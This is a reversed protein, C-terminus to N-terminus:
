KKNTTRHEPIQRPNNRRSEQDQAQVCHIGKKRLAKNGDVHINVFPKNRFLINVSLLLICIAIILM